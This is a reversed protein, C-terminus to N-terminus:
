QMSPINHMGIPLNSCNNHALNEVAHKLIGDVKIPRSKTYLIFFGRHSHSDHKM